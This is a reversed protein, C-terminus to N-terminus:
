SRPLMGSFVEALPIAFRRKGVSWGLNDAVEDAERGGARWVDIRRRKLDVIWLEGVGAEFYRKRKLNRGYSASGPSLVEVVLDPAGHVHGEPDAISLRESRIFVVDPELVLEDRLHLTIPGVVIGLGAGELRDELLRMLKMAVRQHNLRQTPSVHLAGDIIEYRRRSEPLSLLDQYTYRVSPSRQM